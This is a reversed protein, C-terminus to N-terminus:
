LVHHCVHDFRSQLETKHEESRTLCCDLLALGSMAFSSPALNTVVVSGLSPILNSSPNTFCTVPPSLTVALNKCSFSNSYIGCNLDSYRRTPFPHSNRRISPCAC